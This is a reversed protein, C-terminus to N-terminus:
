PSYYEWELTEVREESDLYYEVAQVLNVRTSGSKRYAEMCLPLTFRRSLIQGAPYHREQSSTLVQQYNRSPDNLYEISIGQLDACAYLDEEPCDPYIFWYETADLSLDTDAQMALSLIWALEGTDRSKLNVEEITMTLKGHDSCFAAIGEEPLYSESVPEEQFFPKSVPQPSPFTEEKIVEEERNLHSFHDPRGDGETDEAETILYEEEDYVFWLDPLTDQNEDWITLVVHNNKFYSTKDIMGDSDTDDQLFRDYSIEITGVQIINSEQAQICASLLFFLGVIFILQTIIPIARKM